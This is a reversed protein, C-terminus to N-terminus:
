FGSMHSFDIHMTQTEQEKMKKAYHHYYRIPEGDQLDLIGDAYSSYNPDENDLEFSIFM